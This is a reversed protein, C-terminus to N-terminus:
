SDNDAADDEERLTDRAEDKVSGWANQVKGEAQDAQGEHEMKADGFLKGAGEKMEGGVQKASGKLRDDDVGTATDNHRDHDDM